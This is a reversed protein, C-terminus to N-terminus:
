RGEKEAEAKDHEDVLGDLYPRDEGAEAERKDQAKIAVDLMLDAQRNGDLMAWALKVIYLHPHADPARLYLALARALVSDEAPLVELLEKAFKPNWIM